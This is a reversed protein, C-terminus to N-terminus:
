LASGRKSCACRAWTVQCWGVTLAGVVPGLANARGRPSPAVMARGWTGRALLFDRTHISNPFVPGAFSAGGAWPGLTRVRVSAIFLTQSSRGLSRGRFSSRLVGDVIPALRRRLGAVWPLPVVRGWWQAVGRPAVLLLVCARRAGSHPASGPWPCRAPGWARAIPIV